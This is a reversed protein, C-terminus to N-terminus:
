IDLKIQNLTDKISILLKKAEDGELRIWSGDIKVSIFKGDKIWLVILSGSSNMFSIRDCELLIEEPKSLINM